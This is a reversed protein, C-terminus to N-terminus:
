NHPINPWGILALTDILTTRKVGFNRCVMAKSMGGNLAAIVQEQILAREHRVLTGFEHLPELGQLAVDGLLRLYSFCKFQVMLALQRDAKHAFGEVGTVEEATPSFLRKLYHPMLLKPFRPYATREISAM